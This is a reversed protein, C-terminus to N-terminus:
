KKKQIMFIVFVVMLSVIMLIPMVILMTKSGGGYDMYESKLFANPVFGLRGGKDYDFITYYTEFFPVGLIMIDQASGGM